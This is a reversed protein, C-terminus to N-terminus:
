WGRAWAMKGADRAHENTRGQWGTVRRFTEADWKGRRDPEVCEVRYGHLQLWEILLATTADIKGVGRGITGMVRPNSRRNRQYIPLSRADEVRVTLSESPPYSAIAAIVEWFSLSEVRLLQDGQSVAFGVRGATGPDLGITVPATHSGKRAM